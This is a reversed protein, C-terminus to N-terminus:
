PSAAVFLFFRVLLAVLGALITSLLTGILFYEAFSREKLERFRTIGKAAVIFGIAGWHSNLVFFYILIRELFGIVRGRNYEEVDIPAGPKRDPHRPALKLIEFFYRIFINAENLSLLLGWWVILSKLWAIRELFGIGLYFVLGGQVTLLLPSNFEVSFAPATFLAFVLLYIFLVTVRLANLHSSKQEWFYNILNIGLLSVALGLLAFNFQLAVLGLLELGTKLVARQRDLPHDRFQFVLRTLFVVTGLYFFAPNM